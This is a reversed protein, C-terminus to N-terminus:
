DYSVTLTLTSTVPGVSPSSGDVNYRLGAYITKSATYTSSTIQPFEMINRLYYGNGKLESICYRGAAADNINSSTFLAIFANSPNTATNSPNCGTNASNGADSITVKPTISVGAQYVNPCNLTVTTSKLVGGLIGVTRTVTPKFTGLDLSPATVSCSGTMKRIILDTGTKTYTSGVFQGTKCCGGVINYLVTATFGLANTPGIAYQITLPIHFKTNNCLYSYNGGSTYYFVEAKTKATNGTVNELWHFSFPNPTTTIYNYATSACAPNSIAKTAEGYTITWYNTGSSFTGNRFQAGPQGYTLSCFDNELVSSTPAAGFQDFNIELVLNNITGTSTTLNLNTVTPGGVGQTFKASTICITAFAPTLGCLGASLIFIKILHKFM